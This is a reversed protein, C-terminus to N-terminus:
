FSLVKIFGPHLQLNAFCYWFTKQMSTVILTKKHFLQCRKGSDNGSDIYPLFISPGVRTNEVCM